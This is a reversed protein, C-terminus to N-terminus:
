ILFCLVTDHWYQVCGILYKVLYSQAEFCKEILSKSENDYKRLSVLKQLNIKKCTFLM